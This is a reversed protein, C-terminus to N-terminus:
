SFSAIVEVARDIDRQNTPAGVSLRLAGVTVRPGLRDQMRPITFGSGLADLCSMIDHRAFDFAREAAGPNCFCGGRLAVGADGEAALGLEQFCMAFM